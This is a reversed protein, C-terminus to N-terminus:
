PNTAIRSKSPTVDIVAELVAIPKAVAFPLKATLEECTQPLVVRNSPLVTSVELVGESTRRFVPACHRRAM